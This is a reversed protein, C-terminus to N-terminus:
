LAPSYTTNACNSPWGIIVPGATLDSLDSVDYITGKFGGPYIIKVHTDMVSDLRSEGTGVNSINGETGHGVTGTVRLAYNHGGFKAMQDFPHEDFYSHDYQFKKKYSCTTSEGPSLCVKTHKLTKYLTTLQKSWSPYVLVSDADIVDSVLQQDKLGDEFATEPSVDTDEKPEYLYIDVWVPTAYNNILRLFTSVQCKFKQQIAGDSGLTSTPDIEVMTPVGADLQLYKMKQFASQLDSTKFSKQIDLQGHFVAKNIGAPWTRVRRTIYNHTALDVKANAAGTNWKKVQKKTVIVYHKRKKFSRKKGKPTTFRPNRRNSKSRGSYSKRAM